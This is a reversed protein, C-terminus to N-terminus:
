PANSPVSSSGAHYNSGLTNWRKGVEHVTGKNNSRIMRMLAKRSILANMRAAITKAEFDLKVSEYRFVKSDSGADM